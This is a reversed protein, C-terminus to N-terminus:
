GRPKKLASLREQLMTLYITRDDDSESDNVDMRQAYLFELELVTEHV